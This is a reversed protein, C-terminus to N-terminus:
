VLVKKGCILIFIFVFILTYSFYLVTSVFGTISLKAVFFYVSYIFLYVGTFGCHCDIFHAHSFYFNFLITTESVTVLLIIFVLFLFGFMYYTQHAWISNFIFFMQVLVCGFPLVGGMFMSPFMKSLVLHPPIQRPIQNTRVPFQIAKKKFGMYAGIFTLPLSVGIWLLLLVLLTTFPVAASSESAWLFWNCIFFVGFIIRFNCVTLARLVTADADNHASGRVSFFLDCLSAITECNSKYIRASVYGAVFGLFVYLLVACTILAGRNAPSLFGLCAFVLTVFVMLITQSGSGLFVSLLLTHRPPRFVDGHVLKWGFEEQVDESNDFRNYRSIDRYLTRLFIVAVMGSLFLVIVVSNVIGFWQISTGYKANLIYDWRSAWKIDTKVFQVSYTYTIEFESGPSLLNLRPIATYSEYHLSLWRLPAVRVSIIRGGVPQDLFNPDNGLDHYEITITVHNYLYVADDSQKEVDRADCFMAVSRPIREPLKDKFLVLAICHHAYSEKIALVLRDLKRQDEVKGTKYVKRCLLKCSENKNFTFTLFILTNLKVLM